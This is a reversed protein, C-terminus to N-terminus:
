RSGNRSMGPAIRARESIADVSLPGAMSKFLGSRDGVLLLGAALATGVVGVLKLMLQTSKDKDM